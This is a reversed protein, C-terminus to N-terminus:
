SASNYRPACKITSNIGSPKVRSKIEEALVLSAPEGDIRLEAEQYAMRWIFESSSVLMYQERKVSKSPVSIHLPIQTPKDVVTLTTTRPKEKPVGKEFEVSELKSTYFNFDLEFRTVTPKSAPITSHPAASSRSLLCTLCWPEPPLHQRDDHKRVADDSPSDPVKLQATEQPKAGSAM